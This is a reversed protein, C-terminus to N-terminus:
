KIGVLNLVGFMISTVLAAIPLTILWSSIIKLISNWDCQDTILGLGFLSGCAVHTTSVPMGFRSAFIVVTSTVLNATFGQGDNMKTINYAMTEAVRKSLLIGGIAMTIAVFVISHHNSISTGAILLAAIKPTDNLGRAFGVLGSSFTHTIDLITKAKIGYFHGIYREECIVTTGIKVVPREQLIVSGSLTGQSVGVPAVEIVENGICLCTERKFGIKKRVASLCPYLLAVGFAAIFPSSLLPLLFMSFLKSLNVGDPSALHGAGVLAGVLAHTTSIPFGFRSALSVTLAAGLSISAAFSKLGLGEDPVLGKGSFNLILEKALYLATLSGLLTTITGWTLAVRYSTTKSGLLTAVGKFNDNAGNSFALFLGASLAFVFGM